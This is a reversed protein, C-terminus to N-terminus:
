FSFWMLVTLTQDILQDGTLSNDARVIKSITSFHFLSFCAYKLDKYLEVPPRQSLPPRFSPITWNDAIWPPPLTSLFSKHQDTLTTMATILPKFYFCTVPTLEVELQGKLRTQMGLFVGFIQGCVLINNEWWVLCLVGCWRNYSYHTWSHLSVGHSSLGACHKREKGNRRHLIHQFAPIKSASYKTTQSPDRSKQGPIHSRATSHELRTTSRNYWWSSQNEPWEYSQSFLSLLLNRLSTFSPSRHVRCHVWIKM